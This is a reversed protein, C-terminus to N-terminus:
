LIRRPFFVSYMIGHIGDISYTGGDRFFTGSDCCFSGAPTRLRICYPAQWNAPLLVWQRNQRKALDPFHEIFIRVITATDERAAADRLLLYDLKM